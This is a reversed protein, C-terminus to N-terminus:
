PFQFDKGHRRLYNRADRLWEKVSYRPFIDNELVGLQTNCKRHLVARIRDTTHDHDLNPMLDGNRKKMDLPKGCLECNYNQLKAIEETIINKEQQTLSSYPTDHWKKGKFRDELTLTKSSIEREYNQTQKSSFFM